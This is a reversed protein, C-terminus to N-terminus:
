FPPANLIFDACHKAEAISEKIDDLAEHTSQKDYRAFTNSVVELFGSVSTMDYSQYSLHGFVEPLSVELFNRDLTISNGGLRSVGAEPAYEKIYELLASDVQELAFGEQSIKEWLGTQEHMNRVYDNAVENKLRNSEDVGYHVKMEFGDHLPNFESDTIICAVQLLKHGQNPHLGTTETDIWVINPHEM